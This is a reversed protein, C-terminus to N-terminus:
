SSSAQERFRKELKRLQSTMGLKALKTFEETHHPEVTIVMRVRDGSPFFEVVITQDYSPVEPLFDIVHTIALRTRPKLESFRGHTEHSTPRGMKKMAEIQEPADAIMEYSLVGGTRADLTHVDVRFGEPGWWSEFGAKTTWLDWLEEVDAQYTREFILNKESSGAATTQALDTM